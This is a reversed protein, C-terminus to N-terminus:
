WRFDGEDEFNIAEIDGDFIEFVRKLISIKEKEENIFDLVRFNLLFEKVGHEKVYKNVKDKMENDFGLM